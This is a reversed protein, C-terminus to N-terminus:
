AACHSRAASEGPEAARADPFGIEPTFTMVRNKGERKAAYMASDAQQMLEEADSADDPFISIGISAGINLEHGEVQFPSSIADLLNEAVLAADEKDHLRDLIVM